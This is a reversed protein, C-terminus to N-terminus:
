DKKSLFEIVVSNLQYIAHKINWNKKNRPEVLNSISRIQFFSKQEQLCIFHFAAGEMTEIEAKPYKNKIKDINTQTGSATNVTIGNVKKLNTFDSITNNKLWGDTYPFHNANSLEMEFVSTFNGDNEEVGIDAFRDSVVEVVFGIPNNLSFTGAIGAQIVLDFDEKSFKKLLGYIVAPVGVGTFLIQISNKNLFFESGKKTAKNKLFDITPAIEFETAAVILIKM